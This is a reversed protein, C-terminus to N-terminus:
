GFCDDFCCESAIYLHKLDFVFGFLHIERNWGDKIVHYSSIEVGIVKEFLATPKKIFPYALVTNHDFDLSM